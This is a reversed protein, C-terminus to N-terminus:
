LNRLFKFQWVRYIAELIIRNSMKSKGRLRDEFVIPYELFRFGKLLAKFKLEIQFAYGESKIKTPDICKLIERKWINFGGTLDYIPVGLIRRAYITGFRSIMKRLLSWGKVGGGSIYRSGIIFDYKDLNELMPPLYLPNHSLDADMEVFIPYGEKLGWLFGEIYATGLGLKHHRSLLFLSQPYATEIQKKVIEATGDPSNDDVVLIHPTFGRLTESFVMQIINKINKSENYTPIIILIKM